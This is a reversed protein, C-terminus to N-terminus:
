RIKKRRKYTDNNINQGNEIVKKIGM